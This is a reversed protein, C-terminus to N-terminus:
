PLEDEAVQCRCVAPVQQPKDGEWHGGKRPSAMAFLFGLTSCSALLAAWSCALRADPCCCPVEGQGQLAELDLIDTPNEWSVWDLLDLPQAAPCPM